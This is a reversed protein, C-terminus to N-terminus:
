SHVIGPVKSSQSWVLDWYQTGQVASNRHPSFEKKMLLGQGQCEHSCWWLHSGNSQKQVRLAFGQLVKLGQHGKTVQCAEVLAYARADDLIAVGDLHNFVVHKLLMLHNPSSWIFRYLLQCIIFEWVLLLATSSLDKRTQAELSVSRLLCHYPSWLILCKIKQRTKFGRASQLSSIFISPLHHPHKPSISHGARHLRCRGEPM